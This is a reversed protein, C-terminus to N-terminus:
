EGCREEMRIFEDYWGPRRPAFVNKAIMRDGPM